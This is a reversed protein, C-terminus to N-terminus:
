GGCPPLCTKINEPWYEVYSLCSIIPWQFKYLNHLGGVMQHIDHVLHHNSVWCIDCSLQISKFVTDIHYSWLSFRIKGMYVHMAESSFEHGWARAASSVRDHFEGLARAQFNQRTRVSSAAQRPHLVALWNVTERGMDALMPSDAAESFPLSNRAKEFYGCHLLGRFLFHWKIVDCQRREDHQCRRLIEGHKNPYTVIPNTRWLWVCTLWDSRRNTFGFLGHVSKHRLWMVSGSGMHATGPSNQVFITRGSVPSACAGHLAM